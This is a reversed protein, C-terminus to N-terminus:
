FRHLYGVVARSVGSRDVIPSDRIEDPLRTTGIDFFASHRPAIAYDVRVGLELATAAKGAYQPRGALAEHARVGFYYDVFKRDLRQAQVRPTIAFAGLGFRRDVQLQLKQGKSHGSLDATWDASVRAIGAQWSLVAGGWFGGKREDMGTLRSSDHAEYGSDEYRLRADLSLANGSSRWAKFEAQPGIVRLWANEFYLLPLARNRNDVGAYPRQSTLAGLGLGWAAGTSPAGAAPEQVQANAHLGTLAWALGLAAPLAGTRRARALTATNNM